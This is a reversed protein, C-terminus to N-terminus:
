CSVNKNLKRSMGPLDLLTAVWHDHELDAKENRESRVM